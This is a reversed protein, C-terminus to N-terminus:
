LEFSYCKLICFCIFILSATSAVHFNHEYDWNCEKASVLTLQLKMAPLHPEYKGITRILSSYVLTFMHFWSSKAIVTSVNSVM